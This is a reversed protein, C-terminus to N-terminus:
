KYSILIFYISSSLFSVSAFGTSAGLFLGLTGNAGPLSLTRL